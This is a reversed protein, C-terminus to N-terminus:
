TKDQLSRIERSVFRPCLDLMGSKDRFKNATSFKPLSIRMALCTQRVTGAAAAVKTNSDRYTGNIIALEM